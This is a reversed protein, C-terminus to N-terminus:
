GLSGIAEGRLSRRFRNSEEILLNTNKSTLIKVIPLDEKYKNL